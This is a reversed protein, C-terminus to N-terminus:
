ASLVHRNVGHYQIDEQKIKKITDELAVERLAIDINTNKVKDMLNNIVGALEALTKNGWDSVKVAIMKNSPLLVPM